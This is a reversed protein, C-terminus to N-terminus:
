LTSSHVFHPNACGRAWFEAALMFEREEDRYGLLTTDNEFFLKLKEWSYCDEIRSCAQQMKGNQTGLTLWKSSYKAHLCMHKHILVLKGEVLCIDM